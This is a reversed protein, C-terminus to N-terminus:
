RLFACKGPPYGANPSAENCQASCDFSNLAVLYNRSGLKSRGSIAPQRDQANISGKGCSTRQKESLGLVAPQRAFRASPLLQDQSLDLFMTPYTTQRRTRVGKCAMGAKGVLWSGCAKFPFRHCRHKACATLSPGQAGNQSAIAKLCPLGVYELRPCTCPVNGMSFRYMVGSWKGSTSYRGERSPIIIRRADLCNFQARSVPGSASPAAASLQFAQRLEDRSEKPSGWLVVPIGSWQRTFPPKRKGQQFSCCAEFPQLM